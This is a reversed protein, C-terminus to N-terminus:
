LGIFEQEQKLKREVTGHDGVEASLRRDLQLEPILGPL